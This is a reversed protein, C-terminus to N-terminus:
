FVKRRSFVKKAGKEVKPKAFESESRFKPKETKITKEKEKGAQIDNEKIKEKKEIKQGNIESLVLTIRSTKKQIENASGRARAIWRKYKQGEDVFVKSIYLNSSDLQFSNKANAVAQNLLKLFPLSAKKVTFNLITQAEEVSKGRIMDAILRVKRPAIRLKGLKATINMNKTM